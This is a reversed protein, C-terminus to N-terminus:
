IKIARHLADNKDTSNSWFYNMGEETLLDFGVTYREEENLEDVRHPLYSPFLTIKGPANKVKFMGENVSIFPIEYDTTTNNETLVINGSLYSNQHTAHNHVKLSMGKKQPYVWGNIWLNKHPLLGLELFFSKYVRVIENLLQKPENEEWAFINYQTWHTEDYLSEKSKVLSLLNSIIILNVDDIWIPVDFIPAFPNNQKLGCFRFLKPHINKIRYISNEIM